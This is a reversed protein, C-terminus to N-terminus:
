PVIPADARRRSPGRTEFTSMGACFKSRTPKKSTKMRRIFASDTGPRRPGHQPKQPAPNFPRAFEGRPAEACGQGDQSGWKQALAFSRARDVEGPFNHLFTLISTRLYNEGNAPWQVAYRTEVIALDDLNM